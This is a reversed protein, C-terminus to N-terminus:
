KSLNRITGIIFCAILYIGLGAPLSWILSGTALYGIIACFPVTFM